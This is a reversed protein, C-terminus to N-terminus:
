KEDNNIIGMIYKLHSEKSDLLEMTDIRRYMFREQDYIIFRHAKAHDKISLEIIDLAHEINYSWHHLNFGSKAKIKKGMFSKAKYKEPYKLRYRKTSENNNQNSQKYKVSYKLRHYKDRGRAREEMLFVPNKLKEKLRSKSDQRTCLKCKGLLGDGMQKHTYFETRPKLEGCKFCIKEM